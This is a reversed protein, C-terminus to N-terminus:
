GTSSGGPQDDDDLLSAGQGGAEWPKKDHDPPPVSFGEEDIRGSGSFGAGTAAVTAAAAAGAMGAPFGGPQVTSLPRDRARDESIAALADQQPMEFGGARAGGAATSAPPAPLPEQRDSGRRVDGPPRTPASKSTKRRNMMGPLFSSRRNVNAGSKTTGSGSRDPTISPGLLDGASLDEDPDGGPRSQRPTTDGGGVYSGRTPTDAPTRVISPPGPPELGPSPSPM